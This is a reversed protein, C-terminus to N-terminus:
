GESDLPVSEAARARRAEAAALRAKREVVQAERLNRKAREVNVVADDVAREALGVLDVAPPMGPLVQQGKAM